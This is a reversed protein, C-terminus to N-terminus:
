SLKLNSNVAKLDAIFKERDRPSVFISKGKYRIHLREKSLASANTILRTSQIEEIEDINIVFREHIGSRIILKGTTTIKYYTAANVIIFFITMLMCIAVGIWINNLLCLVLITGNVLTVMAIVKLDIKGRHTIEGTM